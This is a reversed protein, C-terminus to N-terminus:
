FICVWTSRDSSLGIQGKSEVDELEEEPKELKEYKDRINSDSPVVIYSM